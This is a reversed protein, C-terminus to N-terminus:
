EKAIKAGVVIGNSVIIKVDKKQEVGAEIFMNINGMLSKKDEDMDFTIDNYEADLCVFKKNKADISKFVYEEKTADKLVVENEKKDEKSEDAVAADEKNKEKEEYQVALAEILVKEIGM